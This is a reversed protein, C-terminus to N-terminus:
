AAVAEATTAEPAPALGTLIEILNGDPDRLHATRMMWLPRDQAPTDIVVGKAELQAVTEDVNDVEFAIVFTDQHEAQAPKNTTGVAEAMVTKGFLALTVTGGVSLETYDGDPDEFLQTFGLKDRYFALSANMDSVLLRVNLLKM